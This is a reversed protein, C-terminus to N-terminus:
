VSAPRVRSVDTAARRPRDVEPQGRERDIPAIQNPSSPDFCFQLRSIRHLADGDGRPPAFVDARETVPERFEFVASAPGGTVIVADVALTSRFTVAVPAGSENTSIEVLTLRHTNGDARFEFEGPAVRRATDNTFEGDEVTLNIASELGRDRCTAVGEV